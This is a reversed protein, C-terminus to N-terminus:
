QLFVPSYFIYCVVTQPHINPIILGLEVSLEDRCIMGLWLWIYLHLPTVTEQCLDFPRTQAGIGSASGWMVFSAPLKSIPYLHDFFVIHIVTIRTFLPLGGDGVNAVTM